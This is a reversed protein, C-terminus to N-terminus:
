VPSSVRERCSARGIQSPSAFRKPLRLPQGRSLAATTSDNLDNWRQLAEVSVGFRQAISYLTDGSQVTYTSDSPAKQASGAQPLGAMTLLLGVFLIITRM